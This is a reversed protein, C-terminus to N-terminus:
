EEIEGTAPDVRRTKGGHKINISKISPLDPDLGDLSPQAPPDEGPGTPLQREGPFLVPVRRLPPGALAAAAQDGANAIVSASFLSLSLQDRPKDWAVRDNVVYACERGRGLKVVQIWSNSSLDAIATSITRESVGLIKALVSQSVILANQEGMYACMYHLLASATPKKIGFRAWAEHIKKDTQVWRSKLLSPDVSRGIESQQIASPPATSKEIM